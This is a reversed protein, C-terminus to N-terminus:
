ALSAKTQIVQPFEFRTVYTASLNRNGYYYLGGGFLSFIPLLLLLLLIVVDM